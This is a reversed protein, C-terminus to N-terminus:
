RMGPSYGHAGTQACKPCVEFGVGGGGCRSRHRVFGRLHGAHDQGVHAGAHSLALVNVGASIALSACSHRLDHPTVAQVGASKVARTFWGNSSKPRPLYNTTDGFVLADLGRGQCEVSLEDLV